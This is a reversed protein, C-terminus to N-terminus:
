MMWRMACRLPSEDLVQDVAVRGRAPPLGCDEMSHGEGAALHLASVNETNLSSIVSLSGRRPMLEVMMEENRGHVALALPTTPDLRRRPHGGGRGRSPSGGSRCAWMGSCLSHPMAGDPGDVESFCTAVLANATAAAAPRWRSISQGPKGPADNSVASVAAGSAAVARLTASINSVDGFYQLSQWRRFGLPSNHPAGDTRRSDGVPMIEGSALLTTTTGADTAGRCTGPEMLEIDVGDLTYNGANAADFAASDSAMMHACSLM